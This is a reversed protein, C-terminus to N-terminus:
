TKKIFKELIERHDFAMEFNDHVEKLDYWKATAADDAAKVEHTPDVDVHYVISVVHGRPDRDPKGAVCILM